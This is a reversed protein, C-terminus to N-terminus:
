SNERVIRKFEGFGIRKNALEIAADAVKAVAWDPIESPSTESAEYARRTSWWYLHGNECKYLYDYGVGALQSDQSVVKQTQEGCSPCVDSDNNEDYPWEPAEVPVSVKREM